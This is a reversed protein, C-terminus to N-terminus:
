FSSRSKKIKKIYQILYPSSGAIMLLVGLSTIIIPVPHIPSKIKPEPAASPSATNEASDSAGLFLGDSSSEEDHASEEGTPKPTLTPTLKKITPVVTPKPTSTPGSTPVPTNDPKDTPAPTNTPTPTPTPTPAAVSINIVSSDYYPDTSIKRIRIKLEKVDSATEPEFRAKVTTSIKGESDSSFEPMSSWSANQQLWSSNWTDVETFNNGGLAKANYQMNPSLDTADFCINFEEGAIVSSPFSSIIVNPAAFIKSVSAFVFLLSLPILYKRSFKIPLLYKM